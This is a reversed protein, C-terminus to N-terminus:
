EGQAECQNLKFNRHNTGANAVARPQTMCWMKHLGRAGHWYAGQYGCGQAMSQHYQWTATDAYGRCFQKKNGAQASAALLVMGAIIVMMLIIRKVITETM